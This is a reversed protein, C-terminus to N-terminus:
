DNLSRKGLALDVAAQALIQTPNVLMVKVDSQVLVLPIETCGMIVAQAGRKELDRVAATLLRKPMVHKGAKIGQNGFIAKMVKERMVSLEPMLVSFDFGKKKEGSINVTEVHKDHDDFDLGMLHFYRKRVMPIIEEVVACHDDEAMAEMEKAILYKQYIGARITAETGLLGVKTILPQNALYLATEEVINIVPAKLKSRLEDIYVSATNCPVILFDAGIKELGKGAEVMKPVPSSGGYLVANVRNPIQPFNDILIRLHDQDKEAPTLKVIWRFVDVTAEPGMGGIIGVIRRKKSDAM